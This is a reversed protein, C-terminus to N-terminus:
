FTRMLRYPYLRTKIDQPIDTNYTVSKGGLTESQYAESGLRGYRYIVLDELVSELAKPFVYEDEVFFSNNCFVSIDSEAKSILLNFLKDKSTDNVGLLTKINDLVAEKDM